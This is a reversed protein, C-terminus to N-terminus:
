NMLWFSIGMSIDTVRIDHKAPDNSVSKGNMEM